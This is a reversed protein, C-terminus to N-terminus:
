PPRNSRWGGGVAIGFWDDGGRLPPGSRACRKAASVLPPNAIGYGATQKSHHLTLLGFAVTLHIYNGVGCAYLVGFQGTQEM